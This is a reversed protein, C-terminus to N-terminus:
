GKVLEMSDGKFGGATDRESWPAEPERYADVMLALDEELREKAEIAYIQAAEVMISDNGNEDFGVVAVRRQGDDIHKMIGAWQPMCANRDLGEYGREKWGIMYDWRRILWESHTEYPMDKGEPILSVAFAFHELAITDRDGRKAGKKIL